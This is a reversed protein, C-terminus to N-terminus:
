VAYMLYRERNEGVERVIEGEKERKTEKESSKETENTM